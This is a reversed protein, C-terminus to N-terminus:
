AASCPATLLERQLCYKSYPLAPTNCLSKDNACRIRRKRRLWQSGPVVGERYEYLIDAAIVPSEKALQILELVVDQKERIVIEQSLLQRSLATIQSKIEEKLLNTRESWSQGSENSCSSIFYQFTVSNSSIVM